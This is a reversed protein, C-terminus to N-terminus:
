LKRKSFYDLVRCDPSLLYIHDEKFRLGRYVRQLLEREAKDKYFEWYYQPKTQKLIKWFASKVDPNPYKTFIISKCKEGPFDMGRSCKTSFLVDTGGNKFEDVLKGQKDEKQTERLEERNPLFKIEFKEIEERSPLDGFSNVQILGIILEM